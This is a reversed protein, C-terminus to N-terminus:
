KKKKKSGAPLTPGAEKFMEDMKAMSRYVNFYLEKIGYKNEKIAILDYHDNVLSQGDSKLKLMGMLDYEDRVNIVHFATQLSKGDGSNLIADSVIKIKAQNLDARDVSDMQEYAYAQYKLMRMNLPDAQLSSDAYLVLKQWDSRKQTDKNFIARVSDYYIDIPSTSYQDTYSYGYYFYMRDEKSMSADSKLYRQMLKPFYYASKPDKTEKEIKAYDVETIEQAAVMKSCVTLLLLLLSMIPKQYKM